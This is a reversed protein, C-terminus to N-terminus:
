EHENGNQNEIKKRKEERMELVQLRVLCVILIAVGVTVFSDAVNFIPFYMNLVPLWLFPLEIFNDDGCEAFVEQMYAEKKEIDSPKLQNFEWLKDMYIMQEDVIEKDGPDYLLGKVMREYQNM